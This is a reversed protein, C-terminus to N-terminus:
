RTLQSAREIADNITGIRDVLNRAKAEEGFFTQGQM